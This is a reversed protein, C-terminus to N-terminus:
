RQLGIEKLIREQKELMIEEDEKTAHHYGLLHLFGHTALFCFERKLSHGYEIAQERAKNISIMIDGLPTFGYEDMEWDKNSKWLPFSLVDTPADIHRYQQNFRQITANDVVVISVEIPPLKEQKAAIYLSKSIWQIAEKEEENSDVDLQLSIRYEEM